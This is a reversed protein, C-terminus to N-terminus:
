PRSPFGRAEFAKKLDVRYKEDKVGKISPHLNLGVLASPKTGIWERPYFGALEWDILAEVKGDEM